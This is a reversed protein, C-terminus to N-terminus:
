RSTGVVFAEFGEVFGKLKERITEDTLKGAEDFVKNAGSV